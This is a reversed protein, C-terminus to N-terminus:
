RVLRSMTGDVTKLVTGRAMMTVSLGRRTLADAMEVGIYGSGIILASDPQHETLYDRLGFADGMWRLFFVGPLDLGRISPRFSSAGTAIILRDYDFFRERGDDTVALVRRAESDVRVARHGLRLDLGLEELESTTRHALLRHDAVEGSLFFPLGCISYNPFRDAVLVTVLIQPDVERARIAASTGADSGGIVLLRKV